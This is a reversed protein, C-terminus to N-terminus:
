GVLMETLTNTTDTAEVIQTTCQDLIDLDYSTVAVTCTDFAQSAQSNLLRYQEEVEPRGPADPLQKMQRLTRHIKRNWNLACDGDFSSLCVSFEESQEGLKMMLPSSDELWDVYTYEPKKPKPAAQKEPQAKVETKPEPDAATDAAELEGCGTLTFALAAAVATITKKM